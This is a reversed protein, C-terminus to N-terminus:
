GGAVCITQQLKLFQNPTIDLYHNFDHILHSQDYYGCRDIVEFWDIAEQKQSSARVFSVANRFRQYRNMEKASYGLYKKYNLQVNRESQGSKDAVLKVPNLASEGLGNRIIDDSGPDRERLYGAAFDLIKEIRQANDKTDKLEQWMDSFCHTHILEDPDQLVTSYEKLSRGFFRYFTDFKFNVVLIECGPPLEYELAAKLPGTVLSNTVRLAVGDIYILAPTGLSFVLITQFNPLLKKQISESQHNAAYYFPDFVEEWEAPVPIRESICAFSNHSNTEM